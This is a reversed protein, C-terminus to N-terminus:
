PFLAGPPLSPGAPPEVALEVDGCLQRTVAAAEQTLGHEQAWRPSEPCGRRLILVPVAGAALMWRWVDDGRIEGVLLGLGVAAGVVAGRAQFSLAGVMM